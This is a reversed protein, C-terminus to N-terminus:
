RSSTEGTKTPKITPSEIPKSEETKLKSESDVNNKATGSPESQTPNKM